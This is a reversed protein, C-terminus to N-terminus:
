LAGRGALFAARSSARAISQSPVEAVPNNITLTDVKMGIREGAADGMTRPVQVPAAAMQRQLSASSGPMLFSPGGVGGGAAFMMAASPVAGGAAFGYGGPGVPGQDTSPGGYLLWSPVPGTTPPQGPSRVTIGPTGLGKTTRTGWYSHWANYAGLVDSRLTETASLTSGLDAAYYKKPLAESPATKGYKSWVSKGPYHDRTYNVLINMENNLAAWQANTLGAPDGGNIVSWIGTEDSGVAGLEHNLLAKATTWANWSAATAGKPPAVHFLKSYDASVSRLAGPVKGALAYFHQAPNSGGTPSPPRTLGLVDKVQVWAQNLQSNSPTGLATGEAGEAAKAAQWVAPLINSANWQSAAIRQAAKTYYPLMFRTSWLPDTAETRTVGKHAKLEIDYPGWATKDSNSHGPNWKSALYSGLIMAERVHTNGTSNLIATVVPGGGAPIKPVPAPQPPYPRGVGGIPGGVAYGHGQGIVSGMAAGGYRAAAYHIAAYIQAMANESVTGGGFNVLPPTNVYPGAYAHFTGPILQLLGVSPHGAAANSDTLNVATLSGGSETQIQRLWNATLSLPLGMSALVTQIDAAYNGSGAGLFGAPIASQVAKFAAQAFATAALSGWDAEVSGVQDAASAIAGVPGGAARRVPGGAAYSNIAQMVGPGYDRQLHNVSAANIVWEGTSALIPQNDQTPGGVGGVAGGAALQHGGGPGSSPGSIRGTTTNFTRTSIGTGQIVIQGNGSTTLDVNVSKGHMADIQGQLTNVFGKAATASLGTAELDKILKDRAGQTRTNSDGLALIANSFNSVDTAVAPSYFGIKQLSAVFTRDITAASQQATQAAGSLAPDLNTDLSKWLLDVSSKSLGISEAVGYFLAKANAANGAVNSLSTILSQATPILATINGHGTFVASAFAQMAPGAKSAAIISASLQPVLEQQISTTLLAADQSLNSASIAAKQTIAQLAAMPDHVKGVWKALSQLNTTAPGGAEQALASIEAAAAKNTGALPILAAVADKVMTNFQNSVGGKGAFTAEASRVSDFMTEVSSFVSQFDQQLKAASNGTSATTTAVVHGLGTMSAGAVKSDSAFQTMAQGLALFSDIPGSVTKTWADWAQNLKQMQSVAASTTVNMVDLDAGVAGASQGMLEYGRVLGEVKVNMVGLSDNVKVGAANLIGLSQSFTFGQKSLGAMAQALNNFQAIEKNYEQTLPGINQQQFGVPVGGPNLGSNRGSTIAGSTAPASATKLLKQYAATAAEIQKQIQGINSPITVFAQAASLKQLGAQLNGVFEVVAHNASNIQTLLYIFGAAAVAVIGVWNSTIFGGASSLAKRFLNTEGGAKEAATAVKAIQKETGGMAVATAVSERGATSLGAAYTDMMVTGTATSRAFEEMTMGSAAIHQRMQGAQLATVGLEDSLARLAPSKGALTELQASSANIAQAFLLSGRTAGPLRILLGDLGLLARQVWTTFLGGYVVVSHLGIALALLPTPISSIVRALITVTGALISLLREAVQTEQSAKVFSTFLSGVAKDLEVWKATDEAGLNFFNMFGQGNGSVLKNTVKAALNDIISGTREAIVAFTGTNHSMVLMADGALQWVQPQIVNQLKAMKDTFPGLAEGTSKSVTYMGMIQHVAHTTTNGALAAAVGFATLGIAVAALAPISVASFEVIADLWLHWGAIAGAFHNEGFFGAWLTFKSTWGLFSGASATVAHAAADAADRARYFGASLDVLDKSSLRRSEAGVEALGSKFLSAAAYALKSAQAVDDTKAILDLVDQVQTLGHAGISQQSIGSLQSIAYAIKSAAASSAIDLGQLHNIADNVSSHVPGSLTGAMDQAAADADAIGAAAGAAAGGLSQWANSDQPSPPQPASTPAPPGGGGGGAFGGSALTQPGKNLQEYQAMLMAWNDSIAQAQRAGSDVQAKMAALNSYEQTLLRATSAGSFSPVGSSSQNVVETTSIVHPVNQLMARYAAIHPVAQSDDIVLKTSVTDPLGALAANIAQISGSEGIQGLSKNTGQLANAYGLTANTLDRYRLARQLYVDNLSTLEARQKQLWGLYQDPTTYGAWDAYNMQRKLNLTQMNWAYAQQPSTFNYWHARNLLDTLQLERQMDALHQDMTSRGGFSTQQNTAAAAAKLAALDAIEQKIAASNEKRAATAAEQGVVESASEKKAEDSLDKLAAKAAASKAMLDGFDAVARYVVDWYEM